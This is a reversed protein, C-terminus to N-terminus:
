NKHSKLVELKKVEKDVFWSKRQHRKCRKRYFNMVSICEETLGKDITSIDLLLKKIQELCEDKDQKWFDWMVDEYNSHHHILEFILFAEFSIRPFRQLLRIKGRSKNFKFLTQEFVNRYNFNRKLELKMVEGMLFLSSM